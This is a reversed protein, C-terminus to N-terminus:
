EDLYHTECFDQFEDDDNQYTDDEPIKSSKKSVHSVARDSLAFSRFEKLTVGSIHEKPRKSIDRSMRTITSSLNSSNLDGRTRITSSSKSAHFSREVCPQYTTNLPKTHKIRQVERAQQIKHHNAKQAILRHRPSIEPMSTDIAPKIKIMKRVHADYTQSVEVRNLIHSCVPEYRQKM